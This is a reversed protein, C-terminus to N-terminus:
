GWAHHGSDATRQTWQVCPSRRSGHGPRCPSAFCRDNEWPTKFSAHSQKSTEAVGFFYFLFLHNNPLSQNLFFPAINQHIESTSKQMQPNTLHSWCMKGSLDLKKLMKLMGETDHQAGIVVLSSRTMGVTGCPASRGKQSMGITAM